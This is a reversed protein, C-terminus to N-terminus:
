IRRWVTNRTTGHSGIQGRSKLSHLHNSLMQKRKEESYSSLFIHDVRKALEGRSLPSEALSDLIALDLMQGFERSMYKEELVKIIEQAIAKIVTVTVTNGLQKYLHVDAVPLVFSDEFGQLRAWERPTMCRVDESNIESHKGSVIGTAHKKDDIILNRERGMGGCSLTSALDDHSKIKYGFGNGRSQHRKRHNKLTDLYGQSLYYKGDVSDSELIDKITKETREGTPFEFGSIGLDARFAVLYIRERNQPVDFNCSNLITPKEVVYGTEAFAHLIVDLTRGGDHHLLGKVNECFVVKPKNIECVRIIERFLTGRTMGKYNDDFGMRKGAFSFAQCPFGAFCIDFQPLNALAENSIKTIDGYIITNGNPLIPHGAGKVPTIPTAFNAAYTKAAYPDIESVFVTDLNNSGIAKEFGTRIGGIGAFLDICSLQLPQHKSM